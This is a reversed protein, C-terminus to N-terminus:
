GDTEPFYVDFTSGGKPRSIVEVCGGSRKVVAEVIALGLGTGSGPAKTTFFPQFIQQQTAADMGAGTDEVRLRVVRELGHLPSAAPWQLHSIRSTSVTITGGQPMADRANLVLNMLVQELQSGDATVPAGTPDLRKVLRVRSGMLRELLVLSDEAIRNLDVRAVRTGKQRAFDLLQRTLASGRAAAREIWETELLLPDGPPLEERLVQVSGLIVTLLNNFDHAIGGALHGVAELRQLQWLHEELRRQRTVDTVSARVLRRRESPLRVLRVECLIEVGEPTLHTWDFVPTGGGLAEAVRRLAALESPEGSAQTPPSLAIPNSALLKERSLGFLACANSNVDLFRFADVDFVVIAEPAHEVLTRNREESERLAAEAQKRGTVDRAVITAAVPAGDRLVPGTHTAYWRVSGDLHTVQIERIRTDGGSFIEALSQRLEAHLAAPVYDFVRSGQVPGGAGRRASRNLYQITGDERVLLLPDPVAEVLARWLEPSETPGALESGGM